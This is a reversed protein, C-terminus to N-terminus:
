ILIRFLNDLFLQENQTQQRHLVSPQKAMSFASFEYRPVLQLIFPTLSFVLVWLEVWGLSTTHFSYFEEAQHSQHDRDKGRPEPTIGRIGNHTVKPALIGEPATARIYNQEKKPM